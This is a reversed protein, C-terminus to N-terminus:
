NIEFPIQRPNGGLVLEFGREESAKMCSILTYDLGKMAGGYDLPLSLPSLIRGTDTRTRGPARM